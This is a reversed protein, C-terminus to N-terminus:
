CEAEEASQRLSPALLPDPRHPVRSGVAWTHHDDDPDLSTVVANVVVQRHTFGADRFVADAAARAKELAEALTAITPQDTRVRVPEESM